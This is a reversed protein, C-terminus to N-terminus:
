GTRLADERELNRRWPLCTGRRSPTPSCRRTCRAASWRASWARSRSRTRRCRGATPRSRPSRRAARRSRAISSSTPRQRLAPHHRPRREPRPGQDIGPNGQHHFSGRRTRDIRVGRSRLAGTPKPGRAAVSPRKSCTVSIDRTLALRISHPSFRARASAPRSFSCGRRSSSWRTCWRAFRRRARPRAARRAGPAHFPVGGRQKVLDALQEGLRSELIAIRKAKM